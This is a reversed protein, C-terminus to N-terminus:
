EKRVLWLGLANAAKLGDQEILGMIKDKLLESEAKDPDLSEELMPLAASMGPLAGDSSQIEELEEITKPLMDDISEQFSDTIWRMFPRVILFFFLGFALGIVTWRILYSLLKRRELQSLIQNAQEFSEEQFRLNEIKVSDGRDSKFGIASKVLADFKELEEASRPKWNVEVTGDEKTKTETLGDVMVAVSLRDIRGPAEKVNKVTKPVEYNTTKLEKKVDQSFGVQGGDQAGPLNARAGAVGAPNTRAGAMSEEQSQVSRVATKEPDVVEEVATINQTGITADVRAIVKGAGVTKELISQIREEFMRETKQKLELVESSMALNGDYNSKSLARGKNDLVTVNEPELGEVGSAVLFVIGKVQDPTLTKGAHLEVVVSASPQPGEELFTKKAPLALVVKSNKVADLTNIARMLEGQIARQFNVRQAFTSTTFSEKDFLEFGLNGIKNSGAEAMIAMQTSHLLDPPISITKGGDVLQYPINKEKLKTVILGVQDPPVNTFLPVYTGGSIMMMLVFASSIVIALIFLISMRKTPTMNQYFGRIQAILSTLFNRM